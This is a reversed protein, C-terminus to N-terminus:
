RRDMGNGDLSHVPSTVRGCTCCSQVVEAEPKIAETPRNRASRMSLSVCSRQNIKNQRADGPVEAMVVYLEGGEDIVM